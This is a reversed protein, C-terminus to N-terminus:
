PLTDQATPHMLSAGPVLEQIRALASDAAAGNGLSRHAMMVGFWGTAQDPELEVVRQFHRLAAEFRDERIATNGSDLQAVAGPDMESLTEQAAPADITETRQDEPQCAVVALAALSLIVVRRM